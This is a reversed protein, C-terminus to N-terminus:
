QGASFVFPWQVVCLGEEPADFRMRRVWDLVCRATEPDGLTDGVASANMVKGEAGITWRATLKGGLASKVQLRREYCSRIAGARRRVVSQINSAKCYGHQSLPGEALTVKRKPPKGLNVAIKPGGPGTDIDGMAMIRGDGDVGPGGEGDGEFGLGTGPGLVLEGGEGDMAAAIRDTTAAVDGRLVEAVVSSDALQQEIVKDLGLRRPDIRTVKPGDVRPVKTERVETLTPDGLRGEPGGIAKSGSVEELADVEEPVITDLEVVEPEDPESKAVVGPCAGTECAPVLRAEETWALVPAVALAVVAVTAAASFAWVESRALTKSPVRGGLEGAPVVYACIVEVRGRRVVVPEGPAIPVRAGDVATYSADGEPTVAIVPLGEPAAERLGAGLDVRGPEYVIRELVLTRTGQRDERLVRVSLLPTAEDWACLTQRTLAAGGLVLGAAVLAVVWGVGSAISEHAMLELGMAAEARAIVLMGVLATGLGVGWAAAPRRRGSVLGWAAVAAAGLALALMLLGFGGLELGRATVQAVEFTQWPLASVALLSLVGGVVALWLGLKM